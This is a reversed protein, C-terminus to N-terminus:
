RTIEGGSVTREIIRLGKRFRRLAEEIESIGQDCLFSFMDVEYNMRRRIVEYDHLCDGREAPPTVVESVPKNQKTM